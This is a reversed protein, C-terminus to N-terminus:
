CPSCTTVNIYTKKPCADVCAKNNNDYYYGKKCTLCEDFKNECLTCKFFCDLKLIFFFNKKLM